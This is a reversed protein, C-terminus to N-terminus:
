AEAKATNCRRSLKVKDEDTVASSAFIEKVLKGPNINNYGSVFTVSSDFKCRRHTSINVKSTAEAAVWDKLKFVFLDDFFCDM